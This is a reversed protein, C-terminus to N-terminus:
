TSPAGRVSTAIPASGQPIIRAGPDTDAWPFFIWLVLAVEIIGLIWVIVDASESQIDIAAM